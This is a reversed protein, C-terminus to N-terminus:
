GDLTARLGDELRTSRWGLECGETAREVAHGVKGSAGTVPVRVSAM